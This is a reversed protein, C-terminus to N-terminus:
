RQIQRVGGRLIKPGAWEQGHNLAEAPILHEPGEQHGAVEADQQLILVHSDKKGEQRVQARGKMREQRKKKTKREQGGEKQAKGEKRKKNGEKM